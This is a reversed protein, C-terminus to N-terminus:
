HWLIMGHAISSSGCRGCSNDLCNSGSNSRDRHCLMHFGDFRAHRSGL